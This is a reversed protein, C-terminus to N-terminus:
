KQFECSNLVLQNLCEILSIELSADTWFRLLAMVADLGQWVYLVRFHLM